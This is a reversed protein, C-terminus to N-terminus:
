TTFSMWASPLFAMAVIFGIVEDIVIASPDVVVLEREVQGALWIATVIMVITQAAYLLPRLTALIVVQPDAAVTALTGPAVPSLGVGFLCAISRAVQSSISSRASKM